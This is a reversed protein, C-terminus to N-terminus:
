ASRQLHSCLCQRGSIRWASDRCGEPRASATTQQARSSGALFLREIESRDKENNLQVFVCVCVRSALRRNRRMIVSSVYLARRAPPRRRGVIFKSRRARFCLRELAPEPTRGFASSLFHKRPEEEGFRAAAAAAAPELSSRPWCSFLQLLLHDRQEREGRCSATLDRAIPLPWLEPRRNGSALRDIM